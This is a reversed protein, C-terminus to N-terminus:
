KFVTVGDARSIRAVITQWPSVPTNGISLAAKLEQECARAEDLTRAHIVAVAQGERVLDGTKVDLTLGVGLDIADEKTRRGAGLHMAAVGVRRADISAIVGDRPATVELRVAAHPLLEPHDIFAADGGQAEVIAAFRNLARGSAIAERARQKGDEVSPSIGSQLLIEGCLALIVDVLKRPGHGKLVQVAELIELANGVANGLPENMDTVYAITRKGNDEGIDVMTRALATAAETTGMFAGTGWKVDLVIVDAGSALKKGMISSAILPVSDITATVDRLAYLKKDAVAIDSTQAIIAGGLRGVIDMFASSSLNVNFGPIAELKDITGGTHGLGRGSMKPMLAGCSAAVAILPISVTDAVGGSSHKDAKIGKLSSLDIVDGSHAICYTLRSTERPNMGRFYVAMLMASTQYEPISGQVVGDIWFALEEDTLEGGQKKKEILEAFSGTM